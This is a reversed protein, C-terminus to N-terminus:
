SLHKFKGINRAMDGITSELMTQKIQDRLAGWSEHKPCPNDSSCEPFGLVCKDLFETGDLANVVDYLIINEAPQGLMFGGMPGKRSKIIGKRGMDQLIKALYQEPAHLRDTIEKLSTWGIKKKTALVLLAQLGYECYKSLILSM